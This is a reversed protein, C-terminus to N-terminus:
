CLGDIVVHLGGVGDYHVAEFPGDFVDDGFLALAVGDDVHRQPAVPGLDEVGDDVGGVVLADEGDYCGAVLVLGGSQDRRRRRGTSEAHAGDVVLVRTRIEGVITGNHVDKRRSHIDHRRIDALLVPIIIPGHGHAPGAHRTGMNRAQRQIQLTQIRLLVPIARIRMTPQPRQPNRVLHPIRTLHTRVQHSIIPDLPLLSSPLHLHPPAMLSRHPHSQLISIIATPHVTTKRQMADANPAQIQRTKFLPRQKINDLKSSTVDKRSLFQPYIAKVDQVMTDGRM